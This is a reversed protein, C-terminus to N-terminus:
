PGPCTAPSGWGCPHAPCTGSPPAPSRSPRPHGRGRTPRRRGPRPADEAARAPDPLDHGHRHPGPRRCTAPVPWARAAAQEGPHARIGTIATAGPRHPRAPPASADFVASAAREAAKRARNEAEREAARDIVPMGPGPTTEASAIVALGTELTIRVGAPWPARSPEPGTPDVDLIECWRTGLALMGETDADDVRHAERWVRRLAEIRDAGLVPELVRGPM